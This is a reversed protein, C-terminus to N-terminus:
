RADAELDLLLAEIEEQSLDDLGDIQEAADDAVADASAAGHDAAASGTAALHMEDRFQEALIRISRGGVLASTRVVVEIASEIRDKLELAVISDLGIATLPINFDVGDPDLMMSQCVARLVAAQLEDLQQEPARGLLSQATIRAHSRVPMASAPVLSAFYPLRAANPRTKGWVHWNMPLGGIAGSSGDAIAEFLLDLGSDVRIMGMGHQQLRQLNHVDAAMGVDAWPGWAIALGPLGTAVRHAALAELFANAAAYNAQGPSGLFSALSSFMVFFDIPDDATARHLHWGGAVKAPMVADFQRDEMQTVIGNDLIGAAHIVGRIPPMDRRVADLAEAVRAGDSVDVAMVRCDAGRAALSDLVDLAAMSPSSRGFIAISRAGEAVLREVVKLGLGGLGGTVVYTADARCAPAVRDADSAAPSPFAVLSLAEGAAAPDSGTRVDLREVAASLAKLSGAAVRDVVERLLAGYRAPDRELMRGTDITALTVNGPFRSLSLSRANGRADSTDVCAGFDRLAQACTSRELGGAFNVLVDVGDVGAVSRLDRAASPEREDFLHEIRLEALAPHLGSPAAVYARAGLSRVVNVAAVADAVSEVRLLVRAGRETRAVDRLAFLATLYAPVSALADEASLTDPLPAVLAHRVRPHSERSAPMCAYVRTGPATTVGDIEGDGDRLVTGVAHRWANGAGGADDSLRVMAIRLEIEGAKPRQRRAHRLLWGSGEGREVTFAGGAGPDPSEADGEQSFRHALTAVYRRGARFAVQDALDDAVLEAHLQEVERGAQAPDGSSTALDVRACRLEAHELVLGKGVGWALSQALGDAPDGGVVAHVGRTLIWLRPVTVLTADAIARVLHVVSRASLSQEAIVLGADSSAAATTDLSWCHVIGVCATASSVFADELLRAMDERSGAAIEFADDSRRAYADAARVVTVARGEQRLRAALADAAGTGDAFVLWRGDQAMAAPAEIQPTDRWDVLYQWERIDDSIHFQDDEESVHPRFALGEISVVAMGDSDLLWADVRPLADPTDIAAPIARAYAHTAGATTGYFRVKEAGALDLQAVDSGGALRAAQEIAEFLLPHLHYHGSSTQTLSADRLSLLVSQEAMWIEDAVHRAPDYEAGVEGLKRYTEAASLRGSSRQRLLGLDFVRATAMPGVHARCDFTRSWNHAKGQSSDLQASVQVAYADDGAGAAVSQLTPMDGDDGLRLPEAFVLADLESVPAGSQTSAAELAMEVYVGLALRANGRIRLATVYPDVNADLLSQWTPEATPMRLTVLPHKSLRDRAEHHAGEMWYRQRDWRYHPLGRMFRASPLLKRWDPGRSFVQLAALCRLIARQDQQGRELTAITHVGGGGLIRSVAGNLVPNPGVEVFAHRGSAAIAEIAGAFQVEQRVNRGWYDADLLEDPARLSATVTSYYPITTPKPQLFDLRSVLDRRTPEMQASHFAYNVPLMVATTNRKQMAGVFSRVVDADGSVVITTPGNSAAVTLADGYPALLDCIEARGLEVSAMLGKGTAEQMLEARIAILRCADDLSLAGAVHAAAVEGLSHGVVVDPVVGMSELLRAVGIQLAFLAPQAYRTEGLMSEAEDAMLLDRLSWGTQPALVEDCRDIVARYVPERAYLERGMAWWQAGQGSFVFAVGSDGRGPQSQFANPHYGQQAFGRLAAVLDQVDDGVVALQHDLRARRLALTHVADDLDLGSNTEFHAALSEAADKLSRESRASLPLLRPRPIAASAADAAAPSPAAVHEELVFHVNTGGIGFSNVGVLAPRGRDPLPALAQQVRINYQEFPILPNPTEFNLSAPVQRHQLIMSAKIVSAVGAASEAHGINTKVSGIGYVKGPEAGIRLVEGLANVEIPDGLATGTGHAEVYDLLGPQIRASECAALVVRQQAEGNPASIGSSKGDQNSASGRVVAYIMDGDAIAKSLPKMLVVGAGESRVYGDASSDFTKCRGDPAMMGAKSLSMTVTPSLIINVGGALAMECEGSRIAMCGLHISSLSSSCATDIAMAPGRLNLFHSIRSAANTLACGVGAYADSLMEDGFQLQAYDSGSIGIYVGVRRGSVQDAPIGADELAEWGLELLLRHAPDMRIAERAQIAFFRRDFLELDRLFGGRRTNMKGLALPNPDYLAENDWREPPVETVSDLGACLNDWFERPGNASPFRCAIGVIAVLDGRAEGGARDIRFDLEDAKLRGGISPAGAVPEGVMTAIYAALGKLTEQELLVPAPVLLAFHREIARVLSLMGTADLAVERIPTAIGIRDAPIGSISAIEALLWRECDAVNESAPVGDHAVAASDTVPPAAPEARWAHLPRLAGGLYRARCEIRRVKGSSTKPVGSAMLLIAHPDIQHAEVIDQRIGAAINALVAEPLRAADRAVEYVVVLKEEDDVDVAFAVGCSKAIAEHSAEVTAEIDPAHHNAGRILILDKLRGRVFLEGNHLFGLDGTRLFARGPDDALRAAFAANGAEDRGWYGAGISGGSIWIEGTHREPVPVGSDPAVIRILTDGYARGSSVLTRTGEGPATAPMALGGEGETMDFAEMRLHEGRGSVLLTAEALGYAPLLVDHGLGHPAFRQQFAVLTRARIPEAGSVAVRLSSLDIGELAEDEVKRTCLDYAFDPAACFTARHAHIAQLWREPRLVFSEPAMMVSRTGRGLPLVVGTVLGMDHYTPLWSVSVDARGFGPEEGLLACHHALNRHTIVVGKPDGTSGSSYQLLAIDAETALPVFAARTADDADDIADTALWRLRSSGALAAEAADRTSASCLVVTAGCDEAISKLRDLGVGQRPMPAPVAAVGAYLCGTFAAVFELGPRYLLLARDGKAAVAQLAQAIAVARADLAALTLADTRVEHGRVYDVFEFGRRAPDEAVHQRFTDVITVPKARSENM